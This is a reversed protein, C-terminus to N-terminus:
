VQGFDLDNEFLHTTWQEWALSPSFANAEAQKKSEGVTTSPLAAILAQGANGDHLVDQSTTAGFLLTTMQQWAAPTLTAIPNAPKQNNAAEASGSGTAAGSSRVTFAGDLTDGALNSPAPSLVLNRGDNDQLGTQFDGESNLLNFVTSGNPATARVTLNVLFLTATQGYALNPGFSSSGVVNVEGSAVEAFAIAFANDGLSGNAIVGPNVGNFVFVLPDFRFAIEAATLNIGHPDTVFVSLPVLLTSGPKLNGLDAPQGDPTYTLGVFLVPDAGNVAVGSSGSPLAPILSPLGLIRAQLQSVDTGNVFGDKNLDALLYPDVNPYLAFAHVSTIILGQLQSVDSSNYIGIPAVLNGPYASVHFGNVGIFPKPNSAHDLISTVTIDIGTKTDIAPATGGNVLGSVAFTFTGLLLPSDTTSFPSSSSITLLGTAANFNATAGSIASNVTFGTVTYAGDAPSAITLSVATTDSVSGSGGSLVLPVTSTQGPGAVLDGISVVDTGAPIASVSMTTTYNDVAQVTGEGNGDLGAGDSLRRFAPDSSGGDLTVTYTGAALVKAAAVHNLGTLILELQTSSVPVANFRM